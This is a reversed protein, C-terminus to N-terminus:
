DKQRYNISYTEDSFHLKQIYRCEDTFMYQIKHYHKTEKYNIMVLSNSEFTLLFIGFILDRRM